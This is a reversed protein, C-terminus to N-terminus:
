FIISVKHLLMKIDSSVFFDEQYYVHVRNKYFMLEKNLM